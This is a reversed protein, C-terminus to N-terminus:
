VYTEHYKREFFADFFEKTIQTYKWQCRYREFKDIFVFSDPDILKINGKNDILINANNLDNHFFNYKEAFICLNKILSFLNSIFNQNINTENSGMNDLFSRYTFQHSIKLNEMIIINKQLQHINVLMPELHSLKSYTDFWKGQLDHRWSDKQIVNNTIVKINDPM